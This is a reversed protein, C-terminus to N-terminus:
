GGLLSSGGGLNLLNNGVGGPGTLMTSAQGGRSQRENAQQIGRINPQKRNAAAFGEAAQGQAAKAMQVNQAQAANQAGLAKKANQNQSVMTGAGIGVAAATLATAGLGMAAAGVGAAVVAGSM